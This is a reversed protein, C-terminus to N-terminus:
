PPPSPTSTAVTRHKGAGLGYNAGTAADLSVLTEAGLPTVTVTGLCNDAASPSPWAKTCQPMEEYVLSAETWDPPAIDVVTVVQVFEDTNGYVDTATWTHTVTGRHSNCTLDVDTKLTVTAAGCNDTAPLVPPTPYTCPADSNPYQTLDQVFEPVVTDEAQVV